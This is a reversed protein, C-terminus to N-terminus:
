ASVATKGQVEIASNATTNANNGYEFIQGSKTWVKFYAPGNAAVGNASGYARIRAHTDIETRYERSGTSLGLSDNTQPFPSPTGGPDTQILRQGDLCLRDAAIYRVGRVAGDIAKTDPCRTIQFIGQISWGLGLPGNIGSGSYLLALNPQMGAIGPPVAIPQSWSATGSESVAVQAHGCAASLALLTAAVRMAVRSGIPAKM